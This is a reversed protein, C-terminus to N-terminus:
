RKVFQPKEIERVDSSYLVGSEKMWQILQLLCDDDDEGQENVSPFYEPIQIANRINHQFTIDNDDVILTNRENMFKSLIEDEWMKYLPKSYTNNELLLDDFTFIAHPAHTDRTIRDVIAHVYGKKGASWINVIVFNDFCFELFQQLHPRELGWMYGDDLAIVYAQKRMTDPLESLSKMTDQTHVLTLDIDLVICKGNTRNM